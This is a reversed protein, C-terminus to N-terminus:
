VFACVCVDWVKVAFCSWCCADNSFFNVPGRDEWFVSFPDVDALLSTFFFLSLLGGSEGNSFELTDGFKTSETAFVEFYM